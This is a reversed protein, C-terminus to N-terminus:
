HVSFTYPMILLNSGLKFDRFALKDACKSMLLIRSLSLLNVDFRKYNM